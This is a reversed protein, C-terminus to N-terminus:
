RFCKVCMNRLDTLPVAEDTLPPCRDKVLLSSATVDDDFTFCLVTGPHCERVGGGREGERGSREGKRKMGVRGCKPCPVTNIGM